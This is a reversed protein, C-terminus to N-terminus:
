AVTSLIWSMNIYGYNSPIEFLSDPVNNTVKTINTSSVTGDAYTVDARVLTDGNFYYKLTNGESDKGTEVEYRKGGITEYTTKYSKADSKTTLEDMFDSTDEGLMDATMITYKKLSDMVLYWTGDPNDKDKKDGRFIMKLATGEMSADMYFKEKLKGVCILYVSMM